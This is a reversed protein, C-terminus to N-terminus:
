MGTIVLMGTNTPNKKKYGHILNAYINQTFFMNYFVYLLERFPM